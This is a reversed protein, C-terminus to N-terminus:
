YQQDGDDICSILSHDEEQIQQDQIQGSIQFNGANLSVGATTSFNTWILRRKMAIASNPLSWNPILVNSSNNGPESCTLGCIFKDLAWLFLIAMDKFRSEMTKTNMVCAIACFDGYQFYGCLCPGASPTTGTKIGLFFDNLLKNSNFWQLLCVNHERSIVTCEYFKRCVIEKFIQNRM